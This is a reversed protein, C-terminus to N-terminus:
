IQTKFIEKDINSIILKLGKRREKKGGERRGEERRGEEKAISLLSGLAESM